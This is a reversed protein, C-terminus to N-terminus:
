LDVGLADIQERLNIVAGVLRNMDSGPDSNGNLWQELASWLVPLAAVPVVTVPVVDTLADGTHEPYVSENERITWYQDADTERYLLGRGGQQGSESTWDAVILPDTPRQNPEILTLPSSVLLTLWPRSDTILVSDPNATWNNVGIHKWVRGHKDKVSEGIPPEPPLEYTTM